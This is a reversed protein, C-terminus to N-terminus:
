KGVSAFEVRWLGDGNGVSYGMGVSMWFRRRGSSGRRM